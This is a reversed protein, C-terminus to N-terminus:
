DDILDNEELILGEFLWELRNEMLELYNFLVSVCLSEKRSATSIAKIIGFLKVIEIKLFDNKDIEKQLLYDKEDFQKKLDNVAELYDNENNM